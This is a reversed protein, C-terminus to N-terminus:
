IEISAEVTFGSSRRSFDALNVKARFQELTAVSAKAAAM